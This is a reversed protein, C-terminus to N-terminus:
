VHDRLQTNARRTVHGKTGRTNQIDKNFYISRINCFSSTVPLFGQWTTEDGFHRQASTNGGRGLVLTMTIVSCSISDKHTRNKSFHRKLEQGWKKSVRNPCGPGHTYSQGLIDTFGVKTISIFFLQRKEPLKATICLFRQPLIIPM